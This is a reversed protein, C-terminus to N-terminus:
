VASPDLSGRERKKIFCKFFVSLVNLLILGKFGSYVSTVINIYKSRMKHQFSPRTFYLADFVPTWKEERRFDWWFM